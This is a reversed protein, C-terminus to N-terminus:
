RSKRYRFMAMHFKMSSLSIFSMNVVVIIWSEKRLGKLEYVRM